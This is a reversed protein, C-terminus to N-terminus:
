RAFSTPPHESRTKISESRRWNWTNQVGGAHLTGLDNGRVRETADGGANKMTSLNEVLSPGEVSRAPPQGSRWAHPEIRVPRNRRIRDNDQPNRCCRSATASSSVRRSGPEHRGDCSGRHLCRQRRRHVRAEFRRHERVHMRSRRRSTVALRSLERCRSPRATQRLGRRHTPTGSAPELPAIIVSVQDLDCLTHGNAAARDVEFKDRSAANGERYSSCTALVDSPAASGSWESATIM